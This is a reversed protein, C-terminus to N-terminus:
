NPGLTPLYTLMASQQFLFIPRGWFNWFVVEYLYSYLTLLYRVRLECKENFGSNHFSFWTLAESQLLYCISLIFLCLKDLFHCLNVRSFFVRVPGQNRRLESKIYFLLTTLLTGESQVNQFLFSWRGVLRDGEWRVSRQGM